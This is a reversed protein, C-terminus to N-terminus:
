KDSEQQSSLEELNEEAQKGNNENMEREISEIFSAGNESFGKILDNLVDKNFDYLCISDLYIKRAEEFNGEKLKYLIKLLAEIDKGFFGQQVRAEVCKKWEEHLEPEILDEGRSIWNPIRRQAEIREESKNYIWNKLSKEFNEDYQQKTQGTLRLYISNINDGLAYFKYGNFVIFGNVNQEQLEEIKACVDDITKFDGKIYKAKKLMKEDM